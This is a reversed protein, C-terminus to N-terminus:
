LEVCRRRLDRRHKSILERMTMGAFVGVTDLKLPVWDLYYNLCERKVPCSGCIEKAKDIRAREQVKTESHRVQYGRADVTVNDPPFWYDNGCRYYDGCAADDMWKMDAKRSKNVM